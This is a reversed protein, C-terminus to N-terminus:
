RHLLFEVRRNKWNEDTDNYAAVTKTGGMGVVNMRSADIGNDTTLANAV